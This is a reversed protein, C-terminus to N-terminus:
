EHTNRHTKSHENATSKQAQQARSSHRSQAPWANSWAPRASASNDRIPTMRVTSKQWLQVSWQAVPLYRQWPAAWHQALAAPLLSFRRVDGWHQQQLRWGLAQAQAMGARCWQALHAHPIHMLVRGDDALCCDIETLVRPQRKETRPTWSLVVADFTQPAFPWAHPDILAAAKAEAQRAFSPQGNASQQSTAFATTVVHKNLPRSSPVSLLTLPLDVLLASVGHCSALASRWAQRERDSIPHSLTRAALSQHLKM